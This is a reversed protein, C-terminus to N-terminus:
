TSRATAPRGSGRPWPKVRWRRRFCSCRRSRPLRFARCACAEPRRSSTRCRRPRAPIMARGWGSCRRRAGQPGPGEAGRGAVPRGRSSRGEALPRLSAAAQARPREIRRVASGAGRGARRDARGLLAGAQPDGHAPHRGAGGDAALDPEGQYGAALGLLAAEESARNIRGFLSRLFAGSEPDDSQGIWFVAKARLEDPVDSREAYGRLAARARPSEHQSLAFLAKEQLQRDTSRRLISDLATVAKDTGVQSLWFVAQERVEPDPDNRTTELLIDETGEGGEQAILFVAKQRLCASGADRRALIRQLIPRAKEADMQILANVAAIKIDDDGGDCDKGPKGHVDPDPEDPEDPEDPPEPPVPVAVRSPPAPAVPPVPAVATAAREVAVAAAPDGRRALEGEIRRELAAADGQTAAKPFRTRQTRLASRATRLSADDGVRYLAFAQWYYADPAYASAPYRAPLRGFLAAASDFQRRGLTERAARYLSDAPDGQRWPPPPVDDPSPTQIAFTSPEIPTSVWWHSTGIAALALGVHVRFMVASRPQAGHRDARGASSPFPRRGARDRGPDPGPGARPLRSLAARDRGALELDELLRRTAQDRAAPSDLLLRNGALLQRATASALRHDGPRELSARFLTLFAESQALHEEAALRYATPNVRPADAVSTAPATQRNSEPVSMRGIGIGVALVAAAAAAWPVWRPRPARRPQARRRASIAQWM